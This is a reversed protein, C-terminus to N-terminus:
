WNSLLVRMTFDAEASDGRGAEVENHLKKSAGYFYEMFQLTSIQKSSSNAGLSFNVPIDYSAYFKLGSLTTKNQLYVQVDQLYLEYLINSLSATSNLLYQCRPSSLQQSCYIRSMHVDNYLIELIQNNDSVAGDGFM